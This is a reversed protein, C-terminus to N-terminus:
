GEETLKRLMEAGGVNDPNLELSKEYSRIALERDGSIMYAEGLSDYANWANPYAAVNLRLIEIAENVQDSALLYYGLGNLENEAFNYKDFEKEKLDHYLDVAFEFGKVRFAALMTEFISKAGFVSRLGKALGEAPTSLHSGGKMVEWELELNRYQRSELIEIFEHFLPYCFDFEGVTLFLKVPLDAHTEAFEQELAFAVRDGEELPPSAIIYRHILEPSTFLMYLGFLGGRSGGWMARDSPDTRYNSDIFPILEDKIFRRFNEGGSGPRANTHFPTLDRTRMNKGGESPGYLSGYAPAVVILKPVHNGYRLYRTIDTAMAFANDGDLLYLVPYTTTDSEYYGEALFIRIQYEQGSVNSSTITRLESNEIRVEEPPANPTMTAELQVM